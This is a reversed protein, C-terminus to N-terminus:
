ITVLPLARYRKGTLRALANVVAPSIAQAADEVPLEVLDCLVFAARVDDDMCDLAERVFHALGMPELRDLDPWETGPLELGGDVDFRPLFAEPSVSVGRSAGQRQRLAQKM